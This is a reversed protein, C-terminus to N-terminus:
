SPMPMPPRPPGSAGGAVVDTLKKFKTITPKEYEEKKTVKEEEKKM